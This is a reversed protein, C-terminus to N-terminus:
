AVKALKEAALNARSSIPALAENTLKFVAEGNKSTTAVLADLNRRMIKGQLQFLEAPSKVAALEKMDASLTEYASKAEEAYTKGLSQAGNAFIKSSEVLAEVNGKTFETVETAVETSKEYVAKARTQIEGFTAAIPQTFDTTTSTAMIKEKLETVTTHPATIKPAVPRAAAKAVRRARQAAKVAAPKPSEVPKARSAVPKRAAPKPAAPKPAAAKASASVAPAAAKTPATATAPVVAAPSPKPLSQETAQAKAQQVNDETKEPSDSM